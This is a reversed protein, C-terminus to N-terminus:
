TSDHFTIVFHRSTAFAAFTPFMVRNQARLQTIWSSDLVEYIGYHRLGRAYLPHAPLAEDNPAGLRTISCGHFEAVALGKDRGGGTGLRVAIFQLLTKSESQILTPLPAGPEPWCGMDLEVVHDPPVEDTM